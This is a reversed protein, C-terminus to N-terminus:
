IQGCTGTKNLRFTTLRVDTSAYRARVKQLLCELNPDILYDGSDPEIAVFWNYYKDILEPRVREFIVRCREGLEVRKAQRRALEEPLITSETFLQGRNPQHKDFVQTM